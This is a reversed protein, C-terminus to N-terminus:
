YSDNQIELNQLIYKILVGVNDTPNNEFASITMSMAESNSFGYGVLLKVCKTQIDLPINTTKSDSTIQDKSKAFITKVKSIKKVEFITGCECVVKFGKTQAERLFLWHSANCKINPCIYKYSIDYDIPKQNKQITKM